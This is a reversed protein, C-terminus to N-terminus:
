FRKELLILQHPKWGNDKLAKVWGKRGTLTMGECGQNKAWQVVSEHMGM